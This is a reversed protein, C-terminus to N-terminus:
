AVEAFLEENIQEMIFEYKERRRIGLHPRM